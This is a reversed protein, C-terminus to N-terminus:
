AGGVMRKSEALQRANVARVLVDELSGIPWTTKSLTTRTVYETAAELVARDAAGVEETAPPPSIRTWKDDPRQWCEPDLVSGGHGYVREGDSKFGAFVGAAHGYEGAEKRMEDFTYVKGTGPPPPAPTAPEYGPWPGKGSLGLHREIAKLRGNYEHNLSQQRMEEDTLSHEEQQEPARRELTDLDRLVSVTIVELAPWDRICGRVRIADVLRRVKNYFESVEAGKQDTM